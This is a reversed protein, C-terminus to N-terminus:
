RKKETLLLELFSGGDPRVWEKVMKVPYEIEGIILLDGECIDPLRNQDDAFAYTMKGERASKLQAEEVLEAGVPLLPVIQVQALHPLPSGVKGGSLAPPRKSSAIMGALNSASM